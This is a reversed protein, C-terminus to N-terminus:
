TFINKLEKLETEIVTCRISLEIKEREVAELQDQLYKVSQDRKSHLMGREQVLGDVQKKLLSVKLSLLSELLNNLEKEMQPHVTEMTVPVQTVTANIAKMLEDSKRSRSSADTGRHPVVAMSHMPHVVNVKVLKDVVEEPLAMQSERIAHCLNHIGSTASNLEREMRDIQSLADQLHQDVTSLEESYSEALQSLLGDVFTLITEMFNTQSHSPPHQRLYSSLDCIYRELRLRYEQELSKLKLQLDKNLTDVKRLEERTLRLEERLHNLQLDSALEKGQLTTRQQLGREEEGAVRGQLHALTLKMEDLKSQLSDRGATLTVVNLKLESNELEYSESKMKLDEIILKFRELEKSVTLERDLIKSLSDADMTVGLKHYQSVVPSTVALNHSRTSEKPMLTMSQSTCEENVRQLSSTSINRENRLLLQLKLSDNESKLNANAVKLSEMLDRQETTARLSHNSGTLLHIGRSAAASAQVIQASYQLVLMQAASTNLIPFNDIKQFSKAYLLVKSANSDTVFPKLTVMAVTICNSGLVNGMILKLSTDDPKLSVNTPDSSKQIIFHGLSRIPMVLTSTPGSAHHPLSSLSDPFSEAGPLCVLTLSSRLPQALHADKLELDLIVFQTSLPHGHGIAESMTRGKWAEEFLQIGAYATTINRCVLGDVAAFTGKLIVAPQSTRDQPHAAHVLDRCTTGILEFVKMVVTFNPEAHVTRRTASSAASLPPQSPETLESFVKALLTHIVGNRAGMSGQTLSSSGSFVQEKGSDTEGFVLISTNYGNIFQKVLSKLTSSDYIHEMTDEGYYVRSCTLSQESISITNQRIQLSTSVTNGESPNLPRVRALVEVPTVDM